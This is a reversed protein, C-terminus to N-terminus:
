GHIRVQGFKAHMNWEDQHDSRCSFVCCMTNVRLHGEDYLMKTM